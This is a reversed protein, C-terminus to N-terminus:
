SQGERKKENILTLVRAIDKRTQTMSTQRELKGTKAQFRYEMMQKKLETAKEELEGIALNRFEAIKEVKAKPM